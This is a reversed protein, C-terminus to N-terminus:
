EAVPAFATLPQANSGQMVARVDRNCHVDLLPVFPTDIAIGDVEILGIGTCSHGPNEVRITLMSDGYRYQVEFGSWDSPICPEIFLRDGERRIGLMREIAIRYMVSAAGTYWTWGGRGVHDAEAYIDAAVAFPEVQYRAVENPTRAHNIPMLMSMLQGARNGDGLICLAEVTWLVGHTYQGGNERIGPPYAQIYGPDPGAGTFPPTLLLMMQHEQRILQSSAETVARNGRAADAVGSIVSWAQAIADIRCEVSRASGLPTGDDFYARRYWSGDWGSDEIARTLREVQQQCWNVRVGDGRKEALPVFDKMTRVLFMALWVSEGTGAAGVRNMGDNWDGSGMKPLDHAGHTLAADLARTCHEYFAAVVRSVVPTGYVDDDTAGLKQAEIFTVSEDLLTWDGTTLVYKAAAYPLWALDDSCRTRVGEGTDPHWWHQVDGEVFQRCAARLLHERVWNPRTHLLALVDQMQDRFGYAGSSQYFGTRAWYRCSTVQYLLWRNILVDFAADPTRVQVAGLVEDWAARAHQLAQDVFAIDRYREVLGRASELSEGCGLVFVVSESARAALELSVELVACPDLGAGSRGSLSAAHLARPVHRFGAGGFFEERDATFGVATGSSSFFATRAPAGSFPNSAFLTALAPDWQSHISLRTQERNAGLVWEVFGYISLRRPRRSENRLNLRFLKVPDNASVFVTLDYAVGERRLTLSTYGQGHRIECNQGLVAAPSLAFSQGGERDRIYIVEGSPDLIADNSFSTLRQRQSNKYWTFGSGSESVVTGFNQNAIVNCWPMPTCAVHGLHMVYEFTSPDFGGLGNDFLLRSWQGSNSEVAPVHMAVVLSAEDNSKDRSFARHLQRALTGQSAILVVRALSLLLARSEESLHAARRLFIGGRLDMKGPAPTSRILELAADHIPQLYGDAEENLIVFDYRIGNLRLFEHALVLERALETFESTDVRLVVIPLDGSIGQVWLAGTGAIPHLAREPPARLELRPFVIASLLRQFRHAQSPGIGLHRLEVRADVWGLEFTRPISNPEAYTEIMALAEAKSAALATTLSITTRQGPELQVSRRLVLAPDLVNGVAAGLSQDFQMGLPSAISHGRGIFGARSTDYALESWELREPALVQVVWIEQESQTRRRRTALLAGRAPVAETQIFLNGFARHAVDAARPALCVETYATLDLHRTVKSHNTLTLRRIEAPHEPSVVIEMVTEIDGDMRRLEARDVHFVVSYYDPEVKTPDYGVSWMRKLSHDRVYFYIGGSELVSDERFRNVDVDQWTVFGSGTSTILASLEGHGLLHVRRAGAERYNTQEGLDPELEALSPTLVHRTPLEALPADAPVREELLLAAAKIRADAHFRRKMPQKNLVDNLAVLSMGLHHSMFTKVIVSRRGPPVHSPTYDISEFYGYRGELGLRSLERLNKLALVPEVM